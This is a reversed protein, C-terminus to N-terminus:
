NEGGFGLFFSLLFWYRGKQKFLSSIHRILGFITGSDSSSHLFFSETHECTNCTKMCKNVNSNETQPLKLTQNVCAIIGHLKKKTKVISSKARSHRPPTMHHGHVTFDYDICNYSKDHFHLPQPSPVQSPYRIISFSDPFYCFPLMPFPFYWSSPLLFHPPIIWFTTSTLSPCTPLCSSFNSFIINNVCFYIM